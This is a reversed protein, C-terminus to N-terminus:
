DQWCLMRTDATEARASEKIIIIKSLFNKSSRGPVTKAETMSLLVRSDDSIKDKQVLETIKDLFMSSTIPLVKEENYCPIVIYLIPKKM